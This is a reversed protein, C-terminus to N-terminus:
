EDLLGYERYKNLLKTYIVRNAQYQRYTATKEKGAAALKAMEKKEYETQQRIDNLMKEFAELREMFAEVDKMIVPFNYYPIQEPWFIEMATLTHACSLEARVIGPQQTM